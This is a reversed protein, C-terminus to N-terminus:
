AEMVDIQVRFYTAASSNTLTFSGNSGIYIYAWGNTVSWKDGQATFGGMMYTTALTYPLQIVERNNTSAPLSSPTKIQITGFIHKGQKYLKGGDISWGSAYTIKNTIDIIDLNNKSYIEENDVYISPTNNSKLVNVRYDEDVSTGVHVLKDNSPTLNGVSIKKTENASSDVIPLFDNNEKQTLENLESIKINVM